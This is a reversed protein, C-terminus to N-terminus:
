NGLATKAAETDAAVVLLVTNGRSDLVANKLKEVEQPQYNELEEVRTDLYNQLDSIVTQADAGDALELVAFEEAGATLSAYVVGGTVTGDAFGYQVTCATDLELTDLPQSFADSALLAEEVAAPDYGQEAEKPGCATLALCLCMAGALLMTVKKM